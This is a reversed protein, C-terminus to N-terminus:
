SSQLEGKGGRGGQGWQIILWGGLEGPPVAAGFIYVVFSSFSFLSLLDWAPLFEESFVRIELCLKTAPQRYLLPPDLRSAKM